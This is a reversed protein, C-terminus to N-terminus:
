DQGLSIVAVDKSVENALALANEKTRINTPPKKTKKLEKPTLTEKIM